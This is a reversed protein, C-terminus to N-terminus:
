MIVRKCTYAFVVLFLNRVRLAKWGGQDGGRVATCNVIDGVRLPLGGLVEGSTFYVTDDIMGYNLCLQTVVSGRLHRIKETDSLCLFVSWVHPCTMDCVIFYEAPLPIDCKGAACSWMVDEDVPVTSWLPSLLKSLVCRVTTLMDAFQPPRVM